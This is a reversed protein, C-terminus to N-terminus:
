PWTRCRACCGSRMAARGGRCAIAATYASAAVYSRGGIVLRLEPFAEALRGEELARAFRRLFQRQLVSHEYLPTVKQRVRGDAYELAPTLEPLKLFRELPLDHATVAM